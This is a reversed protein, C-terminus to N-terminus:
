ALIKIIEKMEAISPVFNKDTTNSLDEPIGQLRISKGISHDMKGSEGQTRHPPSGKTKSGAVVNAYSADNKECTKNFAEKTKKYFISALSAEIKRLKILIDIEVLKVETKESARNSNFADRDNYDVCNNYLPM